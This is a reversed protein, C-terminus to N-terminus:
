RTLRVSTVLSARRMAANPAHLVPKEFLTQPLRSNWANEREASAQKWGRNMVFVPVVPLKQKQKRASDM